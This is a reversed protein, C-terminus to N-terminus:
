IGRGSAAETQFQFAQVGEQSGQSNSCAFRHLDLFSQM